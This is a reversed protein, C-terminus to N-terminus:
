PGFIFVYDAKWSEVSYNFSFLDNAKGRRGNQVVLIKIKPFIKSIEYIRRNNDIFTIVIRPSCLKIYSNLYSKFIGMHWFKGNTFSDLICFINISELRTELTSTKYKKQDIINKLYDSGMADFILIDCKKPRGWQISPPRKVFQVAKLYFNLIKFYLDGGDIVINQGNM